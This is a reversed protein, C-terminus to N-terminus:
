TIQVLLAQGALRVILLIIGSGVGVPFEAAEEDALVDLDYPALASRGGGEVDAHRSEGDLIFEAAVGGPTGVIVDLGLIGAAVVGEATQIGGILVGRVEIDHAAEAGANFDDLPQLEGGREAAVVGRRVAEGVSRDIVGHPVFVANRVTVVAVGAVRQALAATLRRVVGPIVDEVKVAFEALVADRCGEAVAPHALEVAAHAVAGDIVHASGIDDTHCVDVALDRGALLVGGEQREEGTDIVVVVALVQKRCTDAAILGRLEM